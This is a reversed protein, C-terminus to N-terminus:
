KIKVAIMHCAPPYALTERLEMEEDYFGKYDNAVAYQIAPNFPAHTQIVVLGEVEGRGARGAVQTLLQFTREQSRFDPIRLSLDAYIVGVLTVNPFHLGKAIMQTGILIDIKGSRFAGLTKEYSDKKTMTDSDMRAINASPFLKAAITEVKETGLGSYRIEASDCDPCKGPARVIAGCLHCTLCERKKHYTYSISCESCTAVFGCQRCMMQSAFGRKNLFIITQEGKRLRNHVADILERSYISPGGTEIAEDRMDVVRMEPMLYDDVRKTLEALIYKGTAANHYSELSPTATGLVVVAKEITGRVVAVDRANYRPAEEQKYTNEHEEDVVILGLKRFPAFLASRAGVVIHVREEHIKMWEDYREGDSLRSHLVSVMEGFRARFRETTQPTLSIEPVLVIAEKGSKLTEAIAQLYVETKGSGTVGHLLMTHCETKGSLMASLTRLAERQEPTPEIATTRLLESSSFPDRDVEIYQREVLGAKVLGSLPGDGVGALKLLHSKSLGHQNLLTKLLACKAPSRRENDFIFKQAEDAEKGLYFSAVKKKKQKGSRVAGPLLTRVAQEKSCCYYSAMWDALKLLSENVKPANNRLGLISKLENRAYNSYDGVSLVYGTRESHGFPVRVQAGPRIDRALASPILYDFRKDLSLNVIVKAVENKGIFRGRPSKKGYKAM